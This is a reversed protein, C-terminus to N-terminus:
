SQPLPLVTNRPREKRAARREENKKHGENFEQRLRQAKRGGINSATHFCIITSTCTQARTTPTASIFNTHSLIGALRQASDGCLLMSYAELAEAQRASWRGGTASRCHRSASERTQYRYMVQCVSAPTGGAGGKRMM